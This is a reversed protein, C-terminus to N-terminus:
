LDEEPKLQGAVVGGAHLAEPDIGIVAVGQGCGREVGEAHDVAPGLLALRFGMGLGDGFEGRLVRDPRARIRFHDRHRVLHRRPAPVLRALAPCPGASFAPPFCSWAPWDTLFPSSLARSVIRSCNALPRPETWLM